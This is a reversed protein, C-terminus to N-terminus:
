LVLAQEKEILAYLLIRIKHLPLLDSVVPYLQNEPM